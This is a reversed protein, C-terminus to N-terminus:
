RSRVALFFTFQGIGKRRADRERFWAELAGAAQLTRVRTEAAAIQDPTALAWFSDGKRWSERLPGTPDFYAAGQMVAEEPVERGLLKFGAEALMAGLQGAPIHRRMCAERAEPVLDYYWYGRRLQEHSCLNLVLIGGPRLVRHMEAIVRASAAFTPDTGVELHHLVQNIMAADFAGDAFPLADISAEHFAIRGRAAEAGLKSRAVSLMGANLDVAEIRGVEPLLAESYAGTGCGADLLRIEPLPQGTAALCRRLIGTGIPSRTEDYATSVTQYDEYRSM